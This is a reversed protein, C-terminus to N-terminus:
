PIYTDCIVVSINQKDYVSGPGKRMRSKDGPKYSSYCSPHWQHLLFQRHLVYYHGINFHGGPCYKISITIHFLTRHQPIIDQYLTLLTLTLTLTLTVCLLKRHQLTGGSLIKYIAIHFHRSSVIVYTFTDPPCKSSSFVILHQVQVEPAGSNM